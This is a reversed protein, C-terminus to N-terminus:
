VHARGIKLQKWSLQVNEYGPFDEGTFQDNLIELVELEDMVNKYWRYMSRSNNHYKVVLRSYFKKYSIIEEAEYGINETVDLEKTIKKITTLLWTDEGIRLMCMAIMNEHFFRKNGSYYLLWNTNLKDPNEKYVEMPDNGGSYTHFRIKTKDIEEESLNLIDNIFIKEM